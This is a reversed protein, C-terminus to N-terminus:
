TPIFSIFTEGKKSASDIISLHLFYKKGLYLCTTLSISFNGGSFSTRNSATTSEISIFVNGSNVFNGAAYITRGQVTITKQSCITSPQQLIIDFTDGCSVTDTTNSASVNAEYSGIDFSQSFIAYYFGDSDSTTNQTTKLTGSKSINVIINSTNSVEGSVNGMVLITSGIGYPGGAKCTVTLSRAIQSFFLLSFLLFILLSLSFRM